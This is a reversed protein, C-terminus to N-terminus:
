RRKYGVAVVPCIAANTNGNNNAPRDAAGFWVRLTKGQRECCATALANATTKTAM